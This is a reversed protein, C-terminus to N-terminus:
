AGAISQAVRALKDLKLRTDIRDLLDRARAQLAVSDDGQKVMGAAVLSVQRGSAALHASVPFGAVNVSLAGVLELNGGISRWDGSLNSARLEELQDSTVGSRIAGAVWIGHKDEGARVYAVQSGTHEYHMQTRNADLNGSAHVTSLTIKGIALDGKDTTVAGVHFYAYNTKSRPATVCVGDYGVHCTGWKALHGYVRGDPTVTLPTHTKLKPDDFWSRDYERIAPTGGAILAEIEADDAPTEEEAKDEKGLDKTAETVAEVMEPDGIADVLGADTLVDLLKKADPGMDEGGAKAEDAVAPDLFAEVLDHEVLTNILELEYLDSKDDLQTDDHETGPEADCGCGLDELKVPSAVLEGVPTVDEAEAVDDPPDVDEVDTTDGTPGLYAGEFAPISVITAARIKGETIALVSDDDPLDELVVTTNTLDMSVGLKALLELENVVEENEASLKAEAWLAGDERREINTIVGAVIAGDHAGMDSQVYRLPIPTAWTLAGPEIRRYDDTLVGEYGLIGSLDILKM